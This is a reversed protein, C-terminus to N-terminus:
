NCEVRPCLVVWKGCGVMCLPLSLMLRVKPWKSVCPRSPSLARRSLSLLLNTFYVWEPTPNSTIICKSPKGRRIYVCSVYMWMSRVPRQMQFFDSTTLMRMRVDGNTRPFLPVHALWPCCTGPLKVERDTALFNYNLKLFVGHGTLLM